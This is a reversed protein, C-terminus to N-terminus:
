RTNKKWKLGLKGLLSRLDTKKKVTSTIFPRGVAV